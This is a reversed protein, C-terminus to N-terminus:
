IRGFINFGLYQHEVLKCRRSGYDEVQSLSMGLPLWSIEPIHSIMKRFVQIKFWNEDEHERFNTGSNAHQCALFLSFWKMLLDSGSCYHIGYKM